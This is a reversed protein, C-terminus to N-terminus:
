ASREKNNSRPEQRLPGPVFVMRLVAPLKGGRFCCRNQKCVPGAPTNAWRSLFRFGANGIHRGATCFFVGERDASLNVQGTGFLHLIAHAAVINLLPAVFWVKNHSFFVAPFGYLQHRLGKEILSLM